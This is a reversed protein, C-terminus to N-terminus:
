ITAPMIGAAAESNPRWLAETIEQLYMSDTDIRPPLLPSMLLEATSPRQTPQHKVLWSVIQRFASFPGESPFDAPIAGTDRLARLTLVREMGTSFPPRCMEFLIIGVSFMDARENYRKAIVMQFKSINTNGVQGDQQEPASYMATGVGGTHSDAASMGSLSIGSQSLSQHAYRHHHHHLEEPEAEGDLFMGSHELQNEDDVEGGGTGVSLLRALGFDGIKINGEVDLFINAPKLDRHIMGRSHIYALAELIQRLLLHIEAPRMWLEGEDIVARLTTKCYEMQIFLHRVKTDSRRLSASLKDKKRESRNKKPHTGFVSDLTEDRGESADWMSSVGYEGSHETHEVFPSHSTSNSYEFGLDEETSSGSPASATLDRPKSNDASESDCDLTNSSVQYFKSFSKITNTNHQIKSVSASTPSSSSSSSSTSSQSDGSESNADDGDGDEDSGGESSDSNGIPIRKSSPDGNMEREEVWAAYYRVIHKHLLRSVTTVERRIKKDLGSERDRAGMAIKKVAYFRRDLKNRVKWVEGSAGKGLLSIEEFEEHYRSSHQRSQPQENSADPSRPLVSSEIDEAKTVPKKSNAEEVTVTERRNIRDVNSIAVTAASSSKGIFRSNQSQKFAELRAKQEKLVEDPSFNTFSDGTEVSDKNQANVGASGSKDRMNLM